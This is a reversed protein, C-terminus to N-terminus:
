VELARKAAEQGKIECLDPLGSIEPQMAPEPRSLVQAGSFHNALTILSGPAVINIDSGAWAAEAGCDKPCILGLGLANAGIAAPLAGAIATLKGDLSLEGIVVYEALMDAPVAGLAAMLGVAIPLDYHS